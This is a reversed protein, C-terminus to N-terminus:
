MTVTSADSPTLGYVPDRGAYGSNSRRKRVYRSRTVMGATVATVASVIPHGKLREIWLTGKQWLPFSREM